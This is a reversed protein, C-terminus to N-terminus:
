IYELKLKQVDGMVLANLNTTGDTLALKFMKPATNSNENDKPAGINRLKALQM